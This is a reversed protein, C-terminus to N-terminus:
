SLPNAPDDNRGHLRGFLGLTLVALASLFLDGMRQHFDGGSCGCCGHADEAEKRSIEGDGNSDVADFVDQTLGPLAALAEAYSVGGNQDTDVGDFNADLLDRLATETVVPGTTQKVVLSSYDPVDWGQVAGSAVGALAGTGKPFIAAGSEAGVAVPVVFTLAAVSFLAVKMFSQSM